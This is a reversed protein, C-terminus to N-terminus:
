CWDGTQHRNRSESTSWEPSRGRVMWWYQRKPSRALGLSAARKWSKHDPTVGKLPTVARQALQDHSAIPLYDGILDREYSLLISRRTLGLAAAPELGAPRVLCLDGLPPQCVSRAPRLAHRGFTHLPKPIVVHM